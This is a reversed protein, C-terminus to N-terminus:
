GAIILGIMIGFGCGVLLCMGVLIATQRERKIEEQRQTYTKEKWPLDELNMHMDDWRV